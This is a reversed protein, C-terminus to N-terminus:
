NPLNPDYRRAANAIENIAALPVVEYRRIPISKLRLDITSVLVLKKQKSYYGVFWTRPVPVEIAFPISGPDFEASPIRALASTLNRVVKSQGWDGRVWQSGAGGKVLRLSMSSKVNTGVLIPVLVLPEPPPDLLSNVDSGVVFNTLERLGITFCLLPQGTTASLAENTSDFGMLRYNSPTIHRRFSALNNSAAIQIASLDNTTLKVGPALPKISPDAAFAQFVTAKAVIILFITLAPKM